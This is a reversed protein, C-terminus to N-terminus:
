DNRVGAITFHRVKEPPEKRGAKILAADLTMRVGSTLLPTGNHRAADDEAAILELVMYADSEVTEPQAVGKALVARAATWASQLSEGRLRALAGPEDPLAKARLLERLAATAGPIEAALAAGNIKDM